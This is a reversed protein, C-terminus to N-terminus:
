ESGVTKEQIFASVKEADMPRCFFYGQIEDCNFERLINLQEETEVGEAIVRRNLTRGMTIITKIIEVDDPDTAIDAVFSRDIKITDIPFKKLYSLSSYGTGFDDMAVHIGIENLRALTVVSQEMDKMLMSETIEVELGSPPVGTEALLREIGAAFGEERLQRASLNVAIRIPELGEELWAKYQRCAVRLAWEGVEIIMGTEEMVPIFKGPPVWGLDPSKWRMLAEVGTIRGSRLDLKPQYHLIFDNNELAKNLGTKLVLREKMEDNFDATSFQYNAGGIEKAAALASAANKLLDTREVGDDPCIAIGISATVAVPHGDLRFEKAVTDLIRQALSTANEASSLNPMIISFEDGGLRAVTDGKRVCDNLRSATQKLLLDGYDYGLTENVLKFEDLSVFMLGLKRLTRPANAVMQEVRDLFLSRNPLGTLSDYNAHFHIREEDEKHRTIDSIVCTYYQVKGNVDTFATISLREAYKGGDKRLNWFEGEWYGDKELGEWMRDHIDRGEPSSIHFHPPRDVAEETTYGTMETFARNVAAVKYDAGVAVVAQSLNEIVTQSHNVQDEARRRLERERVLAQERKEIRQELRGHSNLLEEVARNRHVIDRGYISVAKDGSGPFPSIMIEADHGAGDVRQFKLALMEGNTSLAELARDATERFQPHIFDTFSEGIAKHASPVALMEAGANNLYIIRRDYCLCFLDLAKDILEYAWDGDFSPQSRDEEGAWDM